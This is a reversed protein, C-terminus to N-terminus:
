CSSLRGPRATPLLVNKGNGEGGHWLYMITRVVKSVSWVCVAILIEKLTRWVCVMPVPGVKPTEELVREKAAIEAFKPM